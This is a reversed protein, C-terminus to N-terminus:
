IFPVGDSDQTVSIIDVIVWIFTILVGLGFVWGLLVTILLQTLGTKNYGAYFNHIGLTGIFIALLIYILREKPRNMYRVQSNNQKAGCYPCFVDEKNIEGGCSQCYKRDTKKQENFDNTKYDDM